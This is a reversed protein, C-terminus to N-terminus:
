AKTFHRSGVRHGSFSSDRDVTEKHATRHNPRDYCPKVADLGPFADYQSPLNYWEPSIFLAKKFYAFSNCPMSLTLMM